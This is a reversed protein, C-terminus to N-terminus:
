AEGLKEVMWEYARERSEPSFGHGLEHFILQFDDAAGADEWAIKAKDYLEQTAGVPDQEATTGNVMLFPRPAILKLLDYTELGYKLVNPLHNLMCHSIPPAYLAEYTYFSSVACLVKIRKEVMASYWTHGSGM